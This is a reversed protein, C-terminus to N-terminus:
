SVKELFDSLSLSLSLFSGFFSFCEKPQAAMLAEGRVGM